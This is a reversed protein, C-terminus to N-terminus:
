AEANVLGGSRASADGGRIAVLAGLLEEIVRQHANLLASVRRNRRVLKEGAQALEDRLVLMREAAPGAREGISSLTLASPDVSWSAGLEAFLKVRKEDRRAQGELEEEIARVCQELELGRAAKVAAEQRDLLALMRRRALLEEQIWSELGNILSQISRV